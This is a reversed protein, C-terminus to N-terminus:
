KDTKQFLYQAKKLAKLDDVGLVKDEEDAILYGVPLGGQSMYEVLDTIFFEECEVKRGNIEKFVRHPNKSLLPLYNQLDNRRAAYIGSNCVPYKLQEGKTKTKWYAWEIIRRVQDGHIELVGYQKKSTPRFGLVVFSKEKLHETLSIYTSKRVLPVDGMTIIIRDCDQIELFPRAALLAGGTGNLIPQEYYRLGLDQTTEIVDEKKHNVVLAKPGPPLNELINLLIPYTGEYPSENPVLPLLTKNGEFGKIRSGRGAALIISAVEAEKKM